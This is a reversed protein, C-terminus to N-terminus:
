TQVACANPVCVHMPWESSMPPAQLARANAMCQVRVRAQVHTHTPPPPPPQLRLWPHM